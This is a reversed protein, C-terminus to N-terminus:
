VAHAKRELATDYIAKIRDVMIEPSFRTRFIERSRRGMRERLVPDELIMGIVGALDIPDGPRFLFGNERHDIVEPIGGIRSGVLPLGAAAGEILALGLGERATTPLVLVDTLRLVPRVDNLVGTFVVRSALGCVRAQEELAKRRPGDGVLVLKSGPHAAAVSRFAELLVSQGKNDNLSAVATIVQNGPAIEIAARISEIEAPSCSETQVPSANYLVCTKGGPIGLATTLYERVAGAVCIVCGTMSSLIKEIRRHRPNLDLYVTHVHHIVAPVRAIAAALRGFTGAYYGHTHVIHFCGKRMRLALSLVRMPNHYSQLGLVEVAVGKCKLEDAIVGGRALCWVAVDYRERDLGLVICQVVRELGGIKLDEVVHLVRRRAM